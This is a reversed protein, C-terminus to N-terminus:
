VTTVTVTTGVRVTEDAPPNTSAVTGYLNFLKHRKVKLGLAVLQAEADEYRSGILYPIQVMQPGKSVTITVTSFKPQQGTPSISIVNGADVTDSYQDEARKTAFGAATLTQVAKDYSTKNSIPPVDIIPAGTSVYITVTDTPKILQGAAPETRIVNGTKIVDSAKAADSAQKVIKYHIIRAQTLAAVAQQETQSSTISPVQRRDPGLSIVLSVNKGRVLRAGPAPSTKIVEDKDVTESYERTTGGIKYGADELASQAEAQSHHLVNPV